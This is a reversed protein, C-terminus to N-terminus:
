KVCAEWEASKKADIACSYEARTVADCHEAAKRYGRQGRQLERKVDRVAALQAGELKALSPDEAIVLDLYHENMAKCEDVTARGRCGVVLVLAASAL